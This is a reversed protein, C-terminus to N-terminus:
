GRRKELDIQFKSRKVTYNRQSMIDMTREEQLNQIWIRSISILDKGKIIKLLHVNMSKIDLKIITRVDNLILDQFKIWVIFGEIGTGQFEELLTEVRSILNPNM